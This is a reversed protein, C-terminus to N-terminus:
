KLDENKITLEYINYGSNNLSGTEDQKYSWEDRKTYDKKIEIRNLTDTYIGLSDCYRYFDELGSDYLGNMNEYELVQFIEGKYLEKCKITDNYSYSYIVFIVSDSQTDIWYEYGGFPDCSALGFTIACGVIFISAQRFLQNM